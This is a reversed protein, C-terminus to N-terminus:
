KVPFDGMVVLRFRNLQLTAAPTPDPNRDRHGDAAITGSRIKV